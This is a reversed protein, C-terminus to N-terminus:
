CSLLYQWNFFFRESIPLVFFWAFTMLIVHGLMLGGLAPYSFYSQPLPSSSTMSAAPMSSPPHGTGGAHDDPGHALVVTTPVLLLTAGILKFSSTHVM